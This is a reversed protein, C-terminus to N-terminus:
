RHVPAFYHNTTSQQADESSQCHGGGEPSLRSRAVRTRLRLRTRTPGLLAGAPAAALIAARPAAFALLRLQRIVAASPQVPSRCSWRTAFPRSTQCSACSVESNWSHPWCTMSSRSMLQCLPGDASSTAPANTSVDSPSRRCTTAYCGVRSSANWGPARSRSSQRAQGSFGSWM